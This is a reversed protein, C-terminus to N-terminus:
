RSHGKPRARAERLQSDGNGQAAAERRMRALEIEQREPSQANFREIRKQLTEPLSQWASGRDGYGNARMKRRNAVARFRSVAQSAAQEARQRVHDPVSPPITAPRAVAQERGGIVLARLQSLTRLRNRSEPPPEQGVPKLAPRRTPVRSRHAAQDGLHQQRLREMSPDDFTVPLRMDVAARIVRAKFEASGTVAIRDGYREAAMRLAQQVGAQDAERSVQLRDGDDRVASGGARYIITGKKTINDIVPAHGPQAQGEARITDGKLGQAAERARLAALAEANGQLAEQKLWDAWTHRRHQEYLHKCAVRHQAYISELESKMAGSVQAYLLKQTLRGGGLLKIAARRAHGVKKANEVQEEKQRRLEALAAARNTSIRRQASQYQAYLEVTNVRLRLPEKRYERKPRADAQREPSASFPGYQSELKAKSFERGLTSAKIQMGNGAQIVLGNGKVRIELGNARMVDHLEVWSRAGRIETVCERKIWGVLSEIGSHREMDAASAEAGRRRPEHNDRQLGYARELVDCLEALARHPYYPEHITNRVPHIKNIAIHIHLNDTDHHVASVRQHEGFGLGACIRSEIAELTAADPQEGARFSVLLHYTKDGKARTNARQTALVETMADRVTYAACNTMRVEGIRHERAQDATIYKVLEVFDSKGLSRMPVHKAIM